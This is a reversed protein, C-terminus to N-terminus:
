CDERYRGRRSFAVVDPLTQEASCIEGIPLPRHTASRKLRIINRTPETFSDCGGDRM